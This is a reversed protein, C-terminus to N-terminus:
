YVFDMPALWSADATQYARSLCINGTLNLFSTLIAFGLVLMTLTPWGIAIFPLDTQITESLPFITLLSIGISGFVVFTLGAALALAMPSESRCAKRITLINCAYFFGAIVPLVQIFSFGASWPSLVFLAGCAGVFLAAIRWPGVKEGLIPAALLSIFLPYTYLGAAMQPLSLFPAGAFFFFMCILLMFARFYVPKWHTPNLLPLQKSSWAILILLTINGLSRLVQFQWFSTHSSMLKVLGDQFALVFVGILLLVLATIPRDESPQNLVSLPM